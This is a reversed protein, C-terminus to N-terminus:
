HNKIDEMLKAWDQKTKAVMKERDEEKKFLEQDNVMEKREEEANMDVDNEIHKADNNSNSNSDSNSNYDSNSNPNPNPNPNPQPEGDESDGVKRVIMHQQALRRKFEEQDTVLEIGAKRRWEAEKERERELQRQIRMEKFKKLLERRKVEAEDHLNGVADGGKVIGGGLQVDEDDDAADAAFMMQPDMGRDLMFRGVSKMDGLQQFTVPLCDDFASTLLECHKLHWKHRLAPEVARFVQYTSSKKFAEHLARDEMGWGTFKAATAEDYVDIADFDSRFMCSMGFSSDRWYGASKTIRDNRPFLSYFVPFYVQSGQISNFRCADFLTPFIYMDIDSIFMVNNAPVKM